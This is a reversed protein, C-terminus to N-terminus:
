NQGATSTSTTNIADVPLTSTTQTQTTTATTSSVQTSSSSDVETSTSSDLITDHPLTSTSLTPAPSTSVPSIGSQQVMQRFQQSTVCVDDVCLMGTQMKASYIQAIGNHPDALFALLRVKFLGSVYAIEKLSNIVTALIPRDSLTLYGSSNTAVAEPISRQVNQAFFGTYVSTSDLGSEVTWKFQVPDINVIDELSRTFDAQKTKLREDSSATVNGAADTTLNAGASGLGSFQVTGTTTLQAQPTSTGIGVNGKAAISFYSSTGTLTDSSTGISFVGSINSLLWHKANVAANTDTIALYPTQSAVQFTWAPSSTGIGINAFTSNTTSIGTVNNGYIINGINLQGNATASPFSINNGILINQSGTTLNAIAPSSTASALLINNSGTSINRGGDYGIVINFDSNNGVASGASQGIYISGQANHNATGRGAAGGIGITSTASTNRQLASSGIAVNNSGTTNTTLSNIGLATNSSGTTVASLTPNGIGINDSGSTLANLVGTGMAINRGGTITGANNMTNYGLALNATGTTIGRGAVIGFASNQGGGTMNRLAGYGVATNLISSTSSAMAEYGIATNLGASIDSYLARYGIAVGGTLTSTATNLAEYGLAVTGLSASTLNQGAYQGVLISKNSTSAQLTTIDDIQYGGTTGSTKILGSSFTNGSVALASIPSTTGIGIFGNPAVYLASTASSLNAANGAFIYGQQLHYSPTTGFSVPGSFAVNTFTANTATLNGATLGAFSPSSGNTVGSDSSLYGNFEAGSSVPTTYALALSGSLGPLGQLGQPGQPGAPGPVAREIIQYVTQAATAPTPTPTPSANTSLTPVNLRTLPQDIPAQINQVVQTEVAQEGHTNLDQVAVEPVVGSVAKIFGNLRNSVSGIARRLLGIENSTNTDSAVVRLHTTSSSGPLVPTEIQECVVGNTAYEYLCFANIKIHDNLFSQSYTIKGTLVGSPTKLYVVADAAAHTTSFAFFVLTCILLRVFKIHNVTM